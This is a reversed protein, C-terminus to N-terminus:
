HRGLQKTHAFRPSSHAPPRSQMKFTRQICSESVLPPLFGAKSRSRPRIQPTAKQTHILPKTTTITRQNTGLIFPKMTNKDKPQSGQGKLSSSERWGLKGNYYQKNTQRNSVPDWQTSMSPRSSVIGILSVEAEWPKLWLCEVGCKNSQKKISM